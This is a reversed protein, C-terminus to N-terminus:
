RHPHEVEHVSDRMFDLVGEQDDTTPRGAARSIGGKDRNMLLPIDAQGEAGVQAMSWHGFVREGVYQEDLLEVREHRVDKVIVGYLRRVAAQDGELAQVFSEDTILLAGTIDLKKNNSRAVSFINGLTAKRRNEAIRMHSRYILRFTEAM